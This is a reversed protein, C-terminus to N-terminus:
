RKPRWVRASRAASGSIVQTPLERRWGPPEGAVSAVTCGDGGRRNARWQLWRAAGARSLADLTVDTCCRTRRTCRTHHGHRQYLSAAPTSRESPSRHALNARGTFGSQPGLRVSHRIASGTGRRQVKTPQGVLTHTLVGSYPHCVWGSTPSGVRQHVFGSKPNASGHAPPRRGPNQHAFGREPQCVWARTPQGGLPHTPTRSEPARVWVRTPV